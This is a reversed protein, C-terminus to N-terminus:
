TRSRRDGKGYYVVTAARGDVHGRRVGLAKWGYARAFDPFSVGQVGIALRTGSTGAPNPAPETAPKTAFAAADAVSPAGPGGTLLLAAM